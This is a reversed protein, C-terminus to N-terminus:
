VKIMFLHQIKDFAKEAYLSTIMYHKEKLNKLYHIICISKQIHFWGQMWPIFDVQYHHIIKMIQEEIQNKLLSNCLKASTDM